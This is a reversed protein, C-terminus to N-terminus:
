GGVKAFLDNYLRDYKTGNVAADPDYVVPNVM